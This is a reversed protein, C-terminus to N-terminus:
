DILNVLYFSLLINSLLFLFFGSFELIGVLFGFSETLCFSFFSLAETHSM